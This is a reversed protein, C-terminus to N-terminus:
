DDGCASRITTLCSQLQRFDLRRAAYDFTVREVTTFDFRGVRIEFRVTVGTADRELVQGDQALEAFIV